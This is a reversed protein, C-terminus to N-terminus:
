PCISIMNFYTQYQVGDRVDQWVVGFDSGTWALSPNLQSEAATTIRIDGTLNTGSSDLQAFFIEERWGSHRTDQWAVGFGSGTWVLDPQSTTFMGTSVQIDSSTKIAAGSLMAIYILFTGTRMDMWSVAYESGTWTLSPYHSGGSASTIRTTTGATTGAANVTNMAIEYGGGYRNDGWSVGWESGTWVLSPWEVTGGSASVSLDSTTLISTPSVSAFYIIPGGGGRDGSWALGFESGTWELSVQEDDGTANTVRLESGLLSGTASLRRFHIEYDGLRDDEWAVGYESGTWAVKPKQSVGGATSVDIISSTLTGTTSITVFNIANTTLRESWVVGFETGTWAISPWESVDTTSTIEIDSLIPGAGTCPADETGPDTSVDSGPDPDPDAGTDLTTDTGTDDETDEETDSTADPETTEDTPVDPESTTDTPADPEEVMDGTGDPEVGDDTPTDTELDSGTDSETDETEADSPQKDDWNLLAGCGCLLLAATIAIAARM